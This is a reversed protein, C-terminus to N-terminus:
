KRDDRIYHNHCYSRQINPLLSYMVKLKQNYRLKLGNAKVKVWSCSHFMCLCGSQGLRIIITNCLKHFRNIIHLFLVSHCIM